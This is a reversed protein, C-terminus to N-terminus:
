QFQAKGKALLSLIYDIREQPTMQSTKRDLIRKNVASIIDLISHDLDYTKGDSIKHPIISKLDEPTIDIYKDQIIMQEVPSKYEEYVDLLMQEMEKHENLTSIHEHMIISGYPKVYNKYDGPILTGAYLRQRDINLLRLTRGFLQILKTQGLNRLPMVGTICPLDIGEGLIDVNFIIADENDKLARMRTFFEENSIKTGMFYADKYSIAFHKINRFENRFAPHSYINKMEEIGNCGVIVKAGIYSPNFSVQKVHHKHHFFAESISKVLMAINANNTKENNHGTALQIRPCAIEGRKLADQPKFDFLVTGFFDEDDMGGNHDKVKRTATFYYERRANGKIQQINCTFDSRIINHAEDYTILDIEGIDKLRDISHYTSVVFLHRGLKQTEAAFEEIEKQNLSTLHRSVKPSYGLGAYKAYYKSTDGRDSGICLIDFPIGCKIAVDVFEDRLQRNLGLRHSVIGYVGTKNQACKTIMADIHLCIQIITKGCGCPCIIQGRTAQQAAAIADIQHQRNAKRYRDFVTFDAKFIRPTFDRLSTLTSM